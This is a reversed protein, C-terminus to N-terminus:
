DREGLDACAVLVSCPASRAIASATSGLRRLGTLGRTGLVALDPSRRDIEAAITKTPGGRVVVVEPRIGAGTLAAEAAATASAVDTRRDEVVVVTCEIGAAWPLSALTRTALDASASGDHAVLAHRVPTASRAIVTPSPPRTLLWESVSGLALGAIRARGYPGVVVLEAPGMLAIRPDVRAVLHVVEAFCASEAVTRPEPPDWPHPTAEEEPVPKGWPPADAFLVGLRWGPWSQHEIWALATDSAPSGDDGFLVTPMATTSEQARGNM